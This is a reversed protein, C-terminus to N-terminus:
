KLNEEPSNLIFSIENDWSVEIFSKNEEIEDNKIKIL